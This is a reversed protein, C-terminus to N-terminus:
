HFLPKLLGKFEDVENYIKDYQGKSIITILENYSNWLEIDFGNKYDTVTMHNFTISIPLPNNKLYFFMSYPRNNNKPYTHKRFKIYSNSTINYPHKSNVEIISKEM